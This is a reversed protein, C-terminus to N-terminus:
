SRYEQQISEIEPQWNLADPPQPPWILPLRIGKEIVGAQHLCWKVPMPNPLYSLLRYLTTLSQNLTQASAWDGESARATIQAVASPRANSAVSIVGSAGAKMAELFTPDDGSLVAFDTTNQKLSTIRQRDPLAEKIGIINHHRALSATTEPLMDNVTRAPVNYLIIPLPSEDAILRFHALLGDQTTRLYYPVVVLAAQAGLSAALQNRQIVLEPSISGTQAIVQTGTGHCEELARSLLWAFETDTLVASEGTTGAVVLGQVGHSIQQGLLRAWAEKDLSGNAHMPTVLATYTGKLDAAILQKVSSFEAPRHLAGIKGNGTVGPKGKRGRGPM